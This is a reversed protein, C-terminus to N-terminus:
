RSYKKITKLKEEQTQEDDNFCDECIAYEDIYKEGGIKILEGCLSCYVPEKTDYINQEKYDPCCPDGGGTHWAVYNGPYSM